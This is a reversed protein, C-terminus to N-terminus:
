NMSKVKDNIKNEQESIDQSLDKARAELKEAAGLNPKFDVYKSEALQHVEITMENLKSTLAEVKDHIAKKEFQDSFHFTKVSVIIKHLVSHGTM